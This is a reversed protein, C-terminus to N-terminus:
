LGGSFMTQVDTVTGGTNTGATLTISAPTYDITPRKEPKRKELQRKIFNIENWVSM